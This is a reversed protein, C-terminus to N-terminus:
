LEGGEFGSMTVINEVLQLREISKLQIKTLSKFESLVVVLGILLFRWCRGSCSDCVGIYDFEKPLKPGLSELVCLIKVMACLVSCSDAERGSM